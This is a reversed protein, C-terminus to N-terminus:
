ADAEDADRLREVDSGDEYTNIAQLIFDYVLKCWDDAPTGNLSDMYKRIVLLGGYAGNQFSRLDSSKAEDATMGGLWHILFTKIKEKM